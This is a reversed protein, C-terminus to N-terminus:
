SPVIKYCTTGQPGQFNAGTRARPGGARALSDSRTFITRSLWRNASLNVHSQPSPPHPLRRPGEANPTGAAGMNANGEESVDCPSRYPGILSHFHDWTTQGRAALSKKWALFAPGKRRSNRRALPSCWRSWGIRPRVNSRASRAPDIPARHM